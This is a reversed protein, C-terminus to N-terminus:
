HLWSRHSFHGTFKNTKDIFKLNIIPDLIKNQQSLLKFIKIMSSGISNTSQIQDDILTIRHICWWKSNIISSNGFIFLQTISIVCSIVKSMLGCHKLHAWIMMCQHRCSVSRSWLLVLSERGAVGLTLELMEDWLALSSKDLNKIHERCILSVANAIIIKPIVCLINGFYRKSFLSLTFHM